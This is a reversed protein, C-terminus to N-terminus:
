ISENISLKVPSELYKIKEVYAMVRNHLDNPYIYGLHGGVESAVHRFLEMTNALANWNDELNVGVYTEELATWIDTPLLKKLGKGLSGVPVSYNYKLGVYWELVQRLYVHKMDYDLAWKAPLLEGRWLCKAVYPADTLFDNIHKQYDELSPAKPIYAKLTPPKLNETLGDKDLLIKYGADLEPELVSASIMKQFLEVPWLTFDIKLGDAYQVVNGCCEIGYEPHSYVDDWYVVLVEGFDSLWNHSSVFPRIDELILIVDYDSLMDVPTNPVARTSTLLVARIDSTTKAWQTITEIVERPQKFDLM